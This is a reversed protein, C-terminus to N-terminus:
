KPSSAISKGISSAAVKVKEMQMALMINTGERSAKSAM